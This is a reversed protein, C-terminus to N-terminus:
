FGAESEVGRSECKDCLLCLVFELQDIHKMLEGFQMAHGHKEGGNTITFQNAHYQSLACMIAIRARIYGETLSRVEPEM